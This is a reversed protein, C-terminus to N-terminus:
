RSAMRLSLVLLWFGILGLVAGIMFPRAPREHVAIVVATVIAGVNAIAIGLQSWWVEQTVMSVIGAAGYLLVWWTAAGFLVGLLALSIAAAPTQPRTLM